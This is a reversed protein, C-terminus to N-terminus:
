APATQEETKTGCTEGERNEEDKEVKRVRVDEADVRRKDAGPIAFGMSAKKRQGPKGHMDDFKRIAKMSDMDESISAGIEKLAHDFHSLRLTRLLPYTYPQDNEAHRDAEETEERVAAMAAAVCMNKLDSGSYLPTRKALADISVDASLQEDRLLIKLIATRDSQVPLDILLKRPLRRLVAEDLDFPRNTAVMIFANTSSIGDWERLFENIIERHSTMSSTRSRSALLADAEDIFIVLPALKKALSFVAAVNKEGQGVWMENISAGSIQLMNAGSEKAVAKALLTKGTGPPGYLLCGPIRDRALVGYGFAEPRQLSLMTLLKLAQITAAPAQVDSFTTKILSANVLGSMLKKEHENFPGSSTGNLPVAMDPNQWDVERGGRSMPGSTSAKFPHTASGSTGDSGSVSREIESGPKPVPVHMHQRHSHSPYHKPKNTSSAKKLEQALAAKKGVESLPSNEAELQEYVESFTAASVAYPSQSLGIIRQALPYLETFPVIGSGIIPEYDRGLNDRLEDFLKKLPEKIAERSWWGQERLAALGKRYSALASFPLQKGLFEADLPEKSLTELVHTLNVCNQELFDVKESGAWEYSDLALRPEAKFPILCESSAIEKVTKVYEASRQRASSTGVLVIQKGRMWQADAMKRLRGVILAGELTMNLEVFDDIQIIIKKSESHPGAKATAAHLIRELAAQIKVNGWRDTSSLLYGMPEEKIKLLEEEFADEAVDKSHAGFMLEALQAPEHEANLDKFGLYNVLDDPLALTGNLFAARFGLLSFPGRSLAWDQGLYQGLIKSLDQADLRVLDAGVSTAVHRLLSRSFRKGGYKSTEIVTIPRKIDHSTKGIPAKANLEVYVAKEVEIIDTVPNSKGSEEPFFPQKQLIMEPIFVTPSQMYPMSMAEIAENNLSDEGRSFDEPKNEKTRVTRDLGWYSPASKRVADITKLLYNPPPLKNQVHWAYLAYAASLSTVATRREISGLDRHLAKKLEGKKWESLLFHLRYREFSPTSLPTDQSEASTPADTPSPVEVTSGTSQVPAQVPPNSDPQETSPTSAEASVGALQESGDKRAQFSIKSNQTESLGSSPPEIAPQANEKPSASQTIPSETPLLEPTISDEILSDVPTEATNVHASSLCSELTHPGYFQQLWSAQVSRWNPEDFVPWKPEAFPEYLHVNHQVFSEPLDCAPKETEVLKKNARRSRSQTSQQIRLRRATLPVRITAELGDATTSASPSPTSSPDDTSSSDNSNNHPDFSPAPTSSDANSPTSDAAPSSSPTSDQLRSTAHLNRRSAISSPAAASKSASTAAAVRVTARSVSACHSGLRHYCPAISHM